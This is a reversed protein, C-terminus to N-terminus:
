DNIVKTITTPLRSLKQLRKEEHSTEQEVQSHISNEQHFADRLKNFATNIEQIKRISTDRRPDGEPFRDPHWKLLLRKHAEVCQKLSCGETLELLNFYKTHSGVQTWKEAVKWVGVYQTDM